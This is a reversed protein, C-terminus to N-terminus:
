APMREWMEGERLMVLSAAYPTRELAAAFVSVPGVYHSFTTHHIPIVAGLRPPPLDPAGALRRGPM